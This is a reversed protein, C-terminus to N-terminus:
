GSGVGKRASLAPRPGVRRAPLVTVPRLPMRSSFNPAYMISGVSGGAKTSAFGRTSGGATPPVSRTLMPLTCFKMFPSPAPPPKGM